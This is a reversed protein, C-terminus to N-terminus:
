AELGWAVLSGVWKSEPTAGGMKKGRMTRASGPPVDGGASKQSARSEPAARAFGHAGHRSEHAPDEHAPRFIRRREEPLQQAQLAQLLVGFPERGVERDIGM